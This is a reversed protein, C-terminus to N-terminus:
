PPSSKLRETVTGAPTGLLANTRSVHDDWAKQTQAYFQELSHLYHQNLCNGHVFPEPIYPKMAKFEALTLSDRRMAEALSIQSPPGAGAAPAYGDAGPQAALAPMAGTPALILAALVGLMRRPNM